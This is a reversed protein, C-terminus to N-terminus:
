GMRGRTHIFDRHIVNLMDGIHDAKVYGSGASLWNEPGGWDGHPGDHAAYALRNFPVCIVPTKSIIFIPGGFPPTIVKPYFQVAPSELAAKDSFSWAPAIERYNDFQGLLYFVENTEPQTLIAELQLKESSWSLPVEHRGAWAHAGKLESTVIAVTSARPIM